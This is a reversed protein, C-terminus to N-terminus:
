TSIFDNMKLICKWEIKKEDIGKKDLWVYIKKIKWKSQIKIYVLCVLIKIKGEREDGKKWVFPDKPAGLLM